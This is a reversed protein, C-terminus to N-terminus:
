WQLNIQGTWPSWIVSYYLIYKKMIWSTKILRINKLNEMNNYVHWPKKELYCWTTHMYSVTIIMEGTSPGRPQNWNPAIILLVETFMRTHNNKCIFRKTERPHYKLHRSIKKLFQWNALTTSDNWIRLNRVDLEMSFQNLLWM